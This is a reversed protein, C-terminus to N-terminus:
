LAILGADTPEFGCVDFYFTRYEPDFDVHLWECGARRAGAAAFPEGTQKNVIRSWDLLPAIEDAWARFGAKELAAGNHSHALGYDAIEGIDGGHANFMQRLRKQQHRVSKAFAGAQANGTAEGHLERVM